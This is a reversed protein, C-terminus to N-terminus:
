PEDALRAERRREVACMAHWTYWRPDADYFPNEDADVEPEDECTCCDACRGCDTCLRSEHFEYGCGTCTGANAAYEALARWFDDLADAQQFDLVMAAYDRMAALTDNLGPLPLVPASIERWYVRNLKNYRYAEIDPESVLSIVQGTNMHQFYVPELPAPESPQPSNLVVPAAPLLGLEDQCHRCLGGKLEGPAYDVKCRRCRKFAGKLWAPQRKPATKLLTNM